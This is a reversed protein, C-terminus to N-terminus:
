CDGGGPKKQGAPKPLTFTFRTGGDRDIVVTGNLQEALTSVLRLGLSPQNELTIDPSLGAGNDAVIFTLGAADETARISIIGGKKDTFAYKLANTILENSILGLPIATNMNVYIDRIDPEFRVNRSGAEYSSFLVAGLARLYDGLSIRSLDDGKYLQEHVIAMSRVRSQCDKLVDIIVPDDIKRIQLNLISIIIQLNNKVRHHVEKVLTVKEALSAEIQDRMMRRDTIDRNSGRSGRYEGDPSFVPQCEHGIWRVEGNRTIIRFELNDQGEHPVKVVSLHEMVRDRDDPHTISVMLDPDSMFEDPRYGSIRECSPSTYVVKGDPAVWYEWDYTFDAIARYREGIEALQLDRVALEDMQAQLEEHSNRLEENAKLLENTREEVRKELTLNLGKLAEDKEALAFYQQRLLEESGALQEYAARLEEEAQKRETVDEFVAVFYDKAPSTVSLHLWKGIAKFDLDFVEPKGTRAVRGYIEFVEPITERIGPFVETIRKNVIAKTGIIRDFAPNVSLYVWDEPRGEKDYLMRCYAFGELMNEFLTHYREESDRLEQEAMKRETIDRINCQIVRMKDVPYVNSIFEVEKREGDATKLPLDEYRVYGQKQLEEFKEKSSAIDRFVGIDWIHKGMFQNYPIKLMDTLFPNVDVIKGTEGDLILIGDKAAEFLRRYRTESAKLDQGAKEHAMRTRLTGIGYALDDAMEELLQMEDADFAEADGAYITLAGMVTGKIKLPLAAVASYEQRAAEARWNGCEPTDPIAHLVRPNGTRVATGTPGNGQRGANWSVQLTDPQEQEPGSRAVPEVTKERDNRAYGIWAGRYGGVSVLASCISNLFDEESEARILIHNCASIVQYARTKRQLAQWTKKHLEVEDTLRINTKELELTRAAVLDELHENIDRLQNRAGTLEENKQVATEYTSLLMNLIQLRSSTIYHKKGAFYIELGMRVKEMDDVSADALVSKVRALLYKEVYPKIIFNNAGCELAQIVDQPDYLVTVLIIPIKKYREEQKITRCLEYGDMEPMVIDSLILNPVATELKKLAEKGNGAATVRYGANELLFALQEAQTPSDEVILIHIRNNKGETPM